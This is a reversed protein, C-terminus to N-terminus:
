KEMVYIAFQLAAQLEQEGITPFAELIKSHSCGAEVLELIAYVPIRTGAICPAGGYIRKDMAVQNNGMEAAREFVSDISDHVLFANFAHFKAAELLDHDEVQGQLWITHKDNQLLCLRGKDRVQFNEGVWWKENRKPSLHAVRIEYTTKAPYEQETAIM